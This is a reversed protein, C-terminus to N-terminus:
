SRSGRCGEEFLRLALEQPLGTVLVARLGGMESGNRNGKLIRGNRVRWMIVLQIEKM